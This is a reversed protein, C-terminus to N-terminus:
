CLRFPVPIFIKESQFFDHHRLRIYEIWRRSFFELIYEIKSHKSLTKKLLISGWRLRWFSSVGIWRMYVISDRSVIPDTAPLRPSILPFLPPLMAPRYVCPVRLGSGHKRDRQGNRQGVWCSNDRTRRRRGSGPGPLFPSRYFQM